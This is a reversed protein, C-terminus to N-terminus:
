SIWHRTYFPLDSSTRFKVRSDDATTLRFIRCFGRPLCVGPSSRFDLSDVRPKHHLRGIHAATFTRFVLSFVLPLLFFTAWWCSCLKTCFSDWSVKGLFYSDLDYICLPLFHHHDDARLKRRIKAMNKRSILSELTSFFEFGPKASLNLRKKSSATMWWFLFDHGDPPGRCLGASICKVNM